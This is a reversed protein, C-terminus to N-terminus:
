DVAVEVRAVHAARRVLQRDEVPAVTAEAVRQEVERREELLGRRLVTAPDPVRPEGGPALLDDERVRWARGGEDLGKGGGALLGAIVLAAAGILLTRASPLTLNIKM